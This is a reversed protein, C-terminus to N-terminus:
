RIKKAWLRTEMVASYGMSPMVKNFPSEASVPVLAFEAPSGCRMLNELSNILNFSDRPGLKQTHFWTHFQVAKPQGGFTLPVLACVSAYGVIEGDKRFIHTPLIPEHEDERAVVLLQELEAPSAIPRIEAFSTM